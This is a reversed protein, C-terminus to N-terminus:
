SRGAPGDGPADGAHMVTQRPREGPGVSAGDSSSLADRLGEMMRRVARRTVQQVIGHALRMHTTMAIDYRVRTGAGEPTLTWRAWYATLVESRVLTSLVGTATPCQRVRYRVEGIMAQSRYDVLLCAGDPIVREVVADDGDVAAIREPDAVVALVAARPAAVTVMGSVVGDDGVWATPEVGMAVTLLLGWM